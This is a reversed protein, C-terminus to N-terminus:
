FMPIRSKAIVDMYNWIIDDMLNWMFHYYNGDIQLYYPLLDMLIWIVHIEM